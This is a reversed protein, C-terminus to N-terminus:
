AKVRASKMEALREEIRKYGQLRVAWEHLRVAEIDGVHFNDALFTTVEEVFDRFEGLQFTATRYVNERDPASAVWEADERTQRRSPRPVYFITAGHSDMVKGKGGEAGHPQYHWPPNHPASDLTM